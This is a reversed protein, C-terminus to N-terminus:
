GRHDNYRWVSGTRILEHQVAIGDISRAKIPEVGILIEMNDVYLKDTSGLSPSQSLDFPPTVPCSSPFTLRPLVCKLM